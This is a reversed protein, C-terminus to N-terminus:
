EMPGDITWGNDLSRSVQEFIEVDLRRRKNVPNGDTIGWTFNTGPCRANRFPVEQGSDSIMTKEAEKLSKVWIDKGLLRFGAPAAAARRNHPDGFTSRTPHTVTGAWQLPLIGEGNSRYFNSYPANLVWACQPKEPGSSSRM